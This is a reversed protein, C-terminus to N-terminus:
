SKQIKQTYNKSINIIRPSEYALSFVECRERRLKTLKGDDSWEKRLTLFLEGCWYYREDDVQIERRFDNPCAQALIFVNANFKLFFANAIQTRIEDNVHNIYESFMEGM